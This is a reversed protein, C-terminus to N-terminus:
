TGKSYSIKANNVIRNFENFYEVAMEYEESHESLKKFSTLHTSFVEMLSVYIVPLNERDKEITKITESISTSRDMNKLLTDFENITSIIENHRGSFQKIM